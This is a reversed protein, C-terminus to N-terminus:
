ASHMPQTGHKEGQHQALAARYAKSDGGLTDIYNAAGLMSGLLADRESEFKDARSECEWAVLKLTENEARLSKVLEMHASLQHKLLKVEAALSDGREAEIRAALTLAKNEAELADIHDLADALGQRFQAKRGIRRTLDRLEKTDITM